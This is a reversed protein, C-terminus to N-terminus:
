NETMKELYYVVTYELQDLKKRSSLELEQQNLKDIFFEDVIDGTGRDISRFSDNGVKIKLCKQVLEDIFIEISDAKYFKWYQYGAEIIKKLENNQLVEIKQLKWIGSPITTNNKKCAIILSVICVIITYIKM